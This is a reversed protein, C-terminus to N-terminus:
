MCVSLALFVCMRVYISCTAATSSRLIFHQLNVAFVAVVVAIAVIVVIVVVVNVVLVVVVVYITRCHRPVRYTYTDMLYFLCRAAHQFLSAALVRSLEPQRDVQSQSQSPKAQDRPWFSFSFPFHTKSHSALLPPISPPRHSHSTPTFWFSRRRRCPYQACPCSPQRASEHHQHHNCLHASLLELQHQHQFGVLCAALAIWVPSDLHSHSNLLFRKGEENRAMHFAM